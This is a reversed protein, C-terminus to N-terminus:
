AVLKVKGVVGAIAVDPGYNCALAMGLYLIYFHMHMEQWTWVVGFERM